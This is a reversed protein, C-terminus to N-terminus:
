GSCHLSWANRVLVAAVMNHSHM